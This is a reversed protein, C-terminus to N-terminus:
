GPGFRTAAERRARGGDPPEAVSSPRAAAARLAGSSNTSFSRVFSVLASVVSRIAM